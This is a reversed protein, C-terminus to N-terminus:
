QFWSLSKEATPSSEKTLVPLPKVNGLNANNIGRSTVWDSEPSYESTVLTKGKSYLVPYYDIYLSGRFGKFLQTNESSGLLMFSTIWAIVNYVGFAIYVFM